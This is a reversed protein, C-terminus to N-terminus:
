VEIVTISIGHRICAEYEDWVMTWLQGLKTKSTHQRGKAIGDVAMKCDSYRTVQRISAHDKISGLCHQIARMEGRPVTQLGGLAGRAGYKAQKNSGPTPVVHAWGCRRLRKDKTSKGGSGDTFIKVERDQFESIHTLRDVTDFIYGM